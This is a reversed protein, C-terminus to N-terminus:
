CISGMWGALMKAVGDHEGLRQVVGEDMTVADMWWGDELSPWGSGWWWGGSNAESAATLVWQWFQGRFCSDLSIHQSPWQGQISCSMYKCGSASVFPQCKASVMKLKIKKSSIQQMKSWLKLRFQRMLFSGANTWIIAQHWVTGLWWRSGIIAKNVSAYIHWETETLQYM